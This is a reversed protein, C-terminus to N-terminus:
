VPSPIIKEMNQSLVHMKLNNVWVSIDGVGDKM